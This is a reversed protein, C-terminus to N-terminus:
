SNKRNWLYTSPTVILVGGVKKGYLAGFHRKDVTLLHTAQGEIAAWVIPLDKDPLGAADERAERNPPANVVQIQAILFQLQALRDPRADALNVRAETLAYQSSVLTVGELEWLKLLPSSPNYAASFVVNADLFLRDM